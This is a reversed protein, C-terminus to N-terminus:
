AKMVFFTFSAKTILRKEEDYIETEMVQITKGAKIRKGYATVTKTRELLAPALFSIQSDLTTVKVGGATAATGAVIDALSFLVGGHLSGLPNVQWPQITLVATAEGDKIDTFMMSMKESYDDLCKPNNIIKEFDFEEVKM